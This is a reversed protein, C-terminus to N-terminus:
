AVDLKVVYCNDRPKDGHYCVYKCEVKDQYEFTSSQGEGAGKQNKGDTESKVFRM